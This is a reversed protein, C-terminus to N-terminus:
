RNLTRSMLWDALKVERGNGDPFTDRYVKELIYHGEDNYVYHRAKCGSQECKLAVRLGAAPKVWPDKAGQFVWLETQRIGDGVNGIGSIPACAAFVGPHANVIQYAAGGGDSFGSVSLRDMDGGHDEAIRNALEIVADQYQKTHFDADATENVAQPLIVIGGPILEGTRLMEGPGHHREMTDGVGHFFILIPLKEETDGAEPIYIYYTIVTGNRARYRQETFEGARGTASGETGNIYPASLTPLGTPSEGGSLIISPIATWKFAREGIVSVSDPVTVKRLNTCGGFAYAAIERTGQPIGYERNRRSAPYCILVEGARDFLVGDKLTCSPHGPSLIIQKLRGCASFPNGKLSVHDPINVSRLSDCRFFANQAIERVSEPITVSALAICFTFAEEGITEVGERISVANLKHCGGFACFPIEKVTGPISAKRLGRCDWFAFEGIEATGEPILASALKGCDSFASKGIVALSGPFTVSALNECNSFAAEGIVKVGEPISASTISRNNYFAKDGIETVPVGDLESPIAPKKENGTYGIIRATGNELMEYQYGGPADAAAAAFLGILLILTLIGPVPKKM